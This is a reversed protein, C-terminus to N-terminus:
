REKWVWIVTNKTRENFSAVSGDTFTCLGKKEPLEKLLMSALRLAKEEPIDDDVKIYIKKKM